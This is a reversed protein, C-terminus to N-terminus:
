VCIRLLSLFLFFFFLFLFPEVKFVLKIGLTTGCKAYTDVFVDYKSTVFTEKLYRIGQPSIFPPNTEGDCITVTM